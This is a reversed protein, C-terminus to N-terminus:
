GRDTLGFRARRRDVPHDSDKADQSAALRHQGQEVQVREVQVQEVQVEAVQVPEVKVLRLRSGDVVGATEMSHDPDLAAGDVQALTFAVEAPRGLLGALLAALGGVPSDAAVVFDGSAGDGTQESRGLWTVTVLRVPRSTTM